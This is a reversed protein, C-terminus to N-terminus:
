LRHRSGIGTLQPSQHVVIPPLRHGAEQRRRAVGHELAGGGVGEEHIGSM